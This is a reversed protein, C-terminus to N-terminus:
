LQQAVDNGTDIYLASVNFSAPIEGELESVKFYLVGEKEKVNKLEVVANQSSDKNLISLVANPPDVKFSEDGIDWMEVFKSIGMHGAKRVPRDSFYIVNPAGNIRLTDGELSGSTGSIVVCIVRTQQIM